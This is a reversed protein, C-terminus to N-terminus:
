INALNQLAAKRSEELLKIKQRTTGKRLSEEYAIQKKGKSLNTGFIWDHGKKTEKTPFLGSEIQLAQVFSGNKLAPATKHYLRGMSTSFTRALEYNLQDDTKNSYDRIGALWAAMNDESFSLDYYGKAAGINIITMLDSLHVAGVLGIAPGKGYFAEGKEEPDGFFAKKLEKIKEVTDNNFLNTFDVNAAWGLGSAIAYISFLRMAKQADEGLYDGAAVDKGAKKLIKAQYNLFSLGYHQFQGFVAGMPKTLIKSKEWPSYEYHIETVMKAAFKGAQKIRKRKLEEYRDKQTDRNLTKMERYENQLKNYGIAFATKFTHRRNLNEMNKMNFFPVLSASVQAGKSALDAIKDLITVKDSYYIHGDQVDIGINSLDKQFVAGETFKSPDEFKLGHKALESEMLDRMDGQEYFESSEKLGKRGFYVFEQLIQTANRIAGRVSFGLKSAFGISTAIRVYNKVSESMDVGNVATDHMDRILDEVAKATTQIDSTNNNKSFSETLSDMADLLKEDLKTSFNFRVVDSIYKHAYLQPNRSFYESVERGPKKLRDLLQDNIKETDEVQRLFFSDLEAESADKSHLADRIKMSNAVLDLVYHPVYNDGYNKLQEEIKTYEELLRKGAFTDGRKSKVVKKLSGMSDILIKKSITQIEKWADVANMLHENYEGKGKSTLTPQKYKESIYDASGTTVVQIFDEFIKGENQLFGGEIGEGSGLLVSLDKALTKKDEKKNLSNMVYKQELDTLKNFAQKSNINLDYSMIADRFHSMMNQYHGHLRQHHRQKYNNINILERRFKKSIPNKGAKAGGVFLHKVLANNLNFIRNGELDKTFGDITSNFKKLDKMNIDQGAYLEKGTASQFLDKYITLDGDFGWAKISPDNAYKDGIKKLFSGVDNLNDACRM